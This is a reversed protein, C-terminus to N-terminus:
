GAIPAELSLQAYVLADKDFVKVDFREIVRVDTTNKTFATGGVDTTKMELQQRDFFTVAEAMDGVIFPAKKSVTPLQSNPFVVVERGLFRKVTANSPDPTLMPRGNDDVLEDLHQFGDQNTYIKASTSIAPDLDVNLIKKIEKLESGAAVTKKSTYTSKLLGFVKNNETVTAKKGFWRAVYGILNEPSDSLLTNSIPLIGAYDSVSYAVTQFKPNGAEGITDLEDLNALETMDALKEFVRSGSRTTVPEVRVYPLVSLFERKFENIKTSIDQPVIVGGDEAVGGQLAREESESLRKGRLTKLFADRYEVETGQEKRKEMKKEGMKNDLEREEEKDLEEQIAIQKQLSRVEELKTEAETVKGGDNLSRVEGKITELQQKLEDVKRM